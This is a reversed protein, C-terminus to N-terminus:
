FLDLGIKSLKDQLTRCLCICMVDHYTLLSLPWFTLHCFYFEFSLSIAQIIYM